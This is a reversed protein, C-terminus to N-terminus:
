PPSSRGPAFTEVPHPLSSTVGVPLSLFHELGLPEPPCAGLNHNAATFPPLFVYGQYQGTLHSLFSILYQSPLWFDYDEPSSLTPRLLALLHCFYDCVCVFM